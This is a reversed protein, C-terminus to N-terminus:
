SLVNKQLIDFIRGKLTPLDTGEWFLLVKSSRWFQVSLILQAAKESHIKSSNSMSVDINKLSSPYFLCKMLYSKNSKWLIKYPNISLIISISTKKPYKIKSKKLNFKDPKKLVSPNLTGAQRVGIKWQLSTAPSYCVVVPSLPGTTWGM